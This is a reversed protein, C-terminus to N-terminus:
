NPLNFLQTLLLALMLGAVVLVVALILQTVKEHRALRADIAALSQQKALDHKDKEPYDYAKM